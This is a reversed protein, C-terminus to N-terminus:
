AAMREPINWYMRRDDGSSEVMNNDRMYILLKYTYDREFQMARAIVATSVLDDEQQLYALVNEIAKNRNVIFQRKRERSAATSKKSHRVREKEAAAADALSAKACLEIQQLMSLM